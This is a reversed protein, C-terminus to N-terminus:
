YTSSLQRFSHRVLSENQPVQFSLKTRCLYHMYVNEQLGSLNELCRLRCDIIAKGHGGYLTQEEEENSKM